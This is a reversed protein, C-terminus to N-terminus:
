SEFLMASGIVLSKYTKIHNKKLKKNKKWGLGWKGCETNEVLEENEISRM